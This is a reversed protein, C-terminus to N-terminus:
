QARVLVTKLAPQVKAWPPEGEGARFLGTALLAAEIEEQEARMEDDAPLFEPPIHQSQKLNTRTSLGPVEVIGSLHV